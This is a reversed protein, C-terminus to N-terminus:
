LDAAISGVNTRRVRVARRLRIPKTHLIIAIAVISITSIYTDQMYSVELVYRRHASIQFMAPNHVLGQASLRNDLGASIAPQFLDTGLYPSRTALNFYLDLWLM